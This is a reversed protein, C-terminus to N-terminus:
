VWATGVTHQPSGIRRRTHHVASAEPKDLHYFHSSRLQDVPPSLWLDIDHLRPLVGLYAAITHVLPESLAFEVLEPYTGIEEQTLLKHFTVRPDLEAISHEKEAM